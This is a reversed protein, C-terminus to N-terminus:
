RWVVSKCMAITKARYTNERDVAYQFRRSTVNLRGPSAFRIKKHWILCADTLVVMDGMQPISAIVM